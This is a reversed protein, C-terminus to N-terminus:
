CIQNKCRAFFWNKWMISQLPKLLSNWILEMAPALDLCTISGTDTSLLCSCFSFVLLLTNIQTPKLNFFDSFVLVFSAGTRPFVYILSLNCVLTCWQNSWKICWRLFFWDTVGRGQYIENVKKQSQEMTYAVNFIGVDNMHLISDVLSLVRPPANECLVLFNLLSMQRITAGDGLWGLGFMEADQLLRAINIDYTVQFSLLEGELHYINYINFLFLFTM